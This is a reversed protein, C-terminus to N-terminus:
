HQPEITGMKKGIRQKDISRIQDPLIRANKGAFVIEPRCGMPRGASTIPAIIVRPLVANM